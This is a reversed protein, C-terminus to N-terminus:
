RLQEDATPGYLGPVPVNLLRLYVGLQARHHLVHNMFVTRYAEARTGKFIVNGAVTFTWPGALDADTAAVLAARSKAANEDFLKVIEATRTLITPKMTRPDVTRGELTITDAGRGALAALHSALDSLSRSKEHPRWQPQGDPVRELTKRLGAMEADFERLMSEKAGM